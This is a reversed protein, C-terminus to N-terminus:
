AWQPPSPVRGTNTSVYSAPGSCQRPLCEVLYKVIECRGVLKDTALSEVNAALYLPEVTGNEQPEQAMDAVCASVFKRALTEDTSVKVASFACQRLSSRVSEFERLAEQLEGKLDAILASQTEATDRLARVREAHEEGHQKLIDGLKEKLDGLKTELIKKTKLHSASERVLRETDSRVDTLQQSHTRAETKLVNNHDSVLKSEREYMVVERALRENRKASPGGDGTGDKRSAGSATAMDATSTLDDRARRLHRVLKERLKRKANSSEDRIVELERAQRSRLSQMNDQLVAVAQKVSASTSLWASAEKEDLEMRKVESTLRALAEEHSEAEAISEKVFDERAQKTAAQLSLIKHKLEAGEREMTMRESIYSVALERVQPEKKRKSELCSSAEQEKEQAQRRCIQEVQPFATSSAKLYLLVDEDTTAAIGADTATQAQGSRAGAASSSAKPPM